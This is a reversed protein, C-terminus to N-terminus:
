SLEPMKQGSCEGRSTTVSHQPIGFLETIWRGSEAFRGCKEENESESTDTLMERLWADQRAQEWEQDKTREVRKRPRRRKVSSPCPPRVKRSAGPMTTGEKPSAVAREPAHSVEQGAEGKRPELGLVQILYQVEEEVGESSPQPPEPSWWRDEEPEQCSILM